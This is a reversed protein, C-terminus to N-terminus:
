GTEDRPDPLDAPVDEPELPDDLTYAAIRDRFEAAAPEDVAADERPPKAEPPTRHNRNLRSRHLHGPRSPRNRRPPRRRRRRRFGSPSAPPRSRRRAKSARPM